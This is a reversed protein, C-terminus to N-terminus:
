TPQMPGRGAKDCYDVDRYGVYVTFVEDHPCLSKYEKQCNKFSQTIEKNEGWFLLECRTVGDNFTVVACHKDPDHYQFVYQRSDTRQQVTGDVQANRLTLSNKLDVEPKAMMIPAQDRGQGDTLNM